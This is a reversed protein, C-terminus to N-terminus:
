TLLEQQDQLPDPNMKLFGKQLEGDHILSPEPFGIYEILMLCSWPAYVYM